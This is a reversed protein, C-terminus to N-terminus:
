TIWADHICETSVYGPTQKYGTRMRGIVALTALCIRLRLAIAIQLADEVKLGQGLKKTEESNKEPLTPFVEFLSEAGKEM